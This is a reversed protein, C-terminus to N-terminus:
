SKLLKLFQKISNAMGNKGLGPNTVSQCRGNQVGDQNQLRKVYDILCLFSHKM